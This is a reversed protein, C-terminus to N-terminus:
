LFAARLYGLPLSDDVLLHNCVYDGDVAVMAHGGRRGDVVAACGEASRLVEFWDCDGAFPLTLL